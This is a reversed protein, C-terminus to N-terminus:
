NLEISKAETDTGIKGKTDVVKFQPYLTYSRLFAVTYVKNTSDYIWATFPIMEILEKWMPMYEARVSTVAGGTNDSYRCFIWHPAKYVPFVKNQDISSPADEKTAIEHEVTITGELTTYYYHDIVKTDPSFWLDGKTSGQEDSNSFPLPTLNPYKANVADFQEQTFPYNIYAQRLGSLYTSDATLYSVMKKCFTDQFDAPYYMDFKEQDWQEPSNWSVPSLTASTPFSANLHYETGQLTAMSHPFSALLHYGRVTDVENITLTYAPTTILKQTAAASETGTIMAWVESHDISADSRTTYYKALFAANDGAKCVTSSLEWSVTPLVQGIEMKDAFPDHVDCSAAMLMGAALLLIKNYPKM